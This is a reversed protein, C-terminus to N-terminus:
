ASTEFVLVFVCNSDSHLRLSVSAIHFTPLVGKKM